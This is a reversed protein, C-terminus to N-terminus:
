PTEPRELLCRPVAAPAASLTRQDGLTMTSCVRGLPRAIVEKNEERMPSRHFSFRQGAAIAWRQVGSRRGQGCWSIILGDLLVMAFVWSVAAFLSAAVVVVVVVVIAITTAFYLAIEGCCHM